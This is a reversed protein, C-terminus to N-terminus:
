EKELKKANKRSIELDEEVEKILKEDDKLVAKETQLIEHLEHVIKKLENTTRTNYLGQLVALTLAVIAVAFTIIEYATSIPGTTDDALQLIIAIISAIALVIIITRISFEAKIRKM